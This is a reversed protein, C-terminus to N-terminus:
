CEIGKRPIYWGHRLAVICAAGAIFYFPSLFAVCVSSAALTASDSFVRFRPTINLIEYNKQVLVALFTQVSTLRSAYYSTLDVIVIVVM